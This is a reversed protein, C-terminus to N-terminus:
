RIDFYKGNSLPKNSVTIKMRQNGYVITNRNCKIFYISDLNIATLKRIFERLESEKNWEMCRRNDPDKGGEMGIEDGYYVLPTGAWTFIFVFGAKVKEKDGLQSLVRPTDHTGLFIWSNWIFTSTYLCLQSSIVDCLSSDEGKLFKILEEWVQYNMIGDVSDKWMYPVGWIEGILPKNVTRKLEWLYMPNIGSTVDIRFGDVGFDQWYLFVRKFYELAYRFNLKPMIKVDDFKDYGGKVDKYYWNNYRPDKFAWFKDSSHHIPMDLIVKLNQIHAKSLFYRFGDNGGLYDDVNFYDKVDYRHYTDARFIPTLYVTDFGLSKIYGLKESLKYLDAGLRDGKRTCIFRDVFIQYIANFARMKRTPLEPRISGHLNIVDFEKGSETIKMGDIEYYYRYKGPPLVITACIVGKECLELEVGKQFADFDGLVYASRNFSRRLMFTVYYSKEDKRKIYVPM